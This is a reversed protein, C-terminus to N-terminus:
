AGLLGLTGGKYAHQTQIQTRTNIYNVLTNWNILNYVSIERSDNHVTLGFIGQTLVRWLSELKPLMKLYEVAIGKPM